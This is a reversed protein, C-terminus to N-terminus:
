TSKKDTKERMVSRVMKGFDKDRARREALTESNRREETELKRWRALRSEDLEGREIASRVACGPESRHTCDGYRCDAALLGIEEFVQSLGTAAETLQIERMGPTDVLWGGGKLRYFARGTTTHRGKEDDERVSQTATANSQTLSNVLTSKGVGSSGLLVVTQGTGCFPALKQVSDLDLANVTEVLLSPLLRSARKAYSEPSDSLDAKTLVVVPFVNAERALVLYRELRAENFDQNCSSVIFVTDINAAILQTKVSTGAARRKFLSKRELLRGFHMADRDLLLWDGVTPAGEDDAREALIPIEILRNVSEGAVRLKDRHVELVRVPVMADDGDHVLQRAFSSDWGLENLSQFHDYSM